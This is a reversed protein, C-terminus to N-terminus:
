GSWYEQRSFEMSLPAQCAVTWPDCLTPCSQVVLVGMCKYIFVYTYLMYAYMIYMCECMIPLFLCRELHNKHNRHDKHKHDFDVENRYRTLWISFHIASLNLCKLYIVCRLVSLVPIYSSSEQSVTGLSRWHKTSWSSPPFIHLKLQFM